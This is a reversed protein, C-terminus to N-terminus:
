RVEDLKSQAYEKVSPHDDAFSEFWSQGDEDKCASAIKVAAAWQKPTFFPDDGSLNEHFSAIMDAWEFEGSDVMESILALANEINEESSHKGKRKKSTDSGDHNPKIAQANNLREQVLSDLGKTITKMESDSPPNVQMFDGITKLSERMATLLCLADPMTGCRRELLEVAGLVVWLSKGAHM